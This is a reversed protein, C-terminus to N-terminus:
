NKYFVFDLRIGQGPQPADSLSLSEAANRFCSVMDQPVHDVHVNGIRGSDDLDFTM